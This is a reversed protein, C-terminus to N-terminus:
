KNPCSETTIAHLFLRWGHKGKTTKVNCIRKKMANLTARVVFFPIILLLTLVPTSNTSYGNTQRQKMEMQCGIIAAVSQFNSFDQDLVPVPRQTMINLLSQQLAYLEYQLGKPEYNRRYKSEFCIRLDRAYVTSQCDQCHKM